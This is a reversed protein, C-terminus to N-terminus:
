ATDITQTSHPALALGAPKAAGGKIFKRWLNFFPLLIEGQNCRQKMITKCNVLKESSKNTDTGLKTHYYPKVL